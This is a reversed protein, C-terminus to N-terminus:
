QAVSRSGENSSGIPTGPPLPRAAISFGQRHLEENLARFLEFSDPYIWLTVTHKGPNLRALSQRFISDPRLAERLNEGTNEEVPILVSSESINAQQAGALQDTASAEKRVIVYRLRFGGRPGVLTSIESQSRLKLIQRKLDETALNILEQFPIPTVRGGQLQYFAQDGTVTRGIPTTYSQIKVAAPTRTRVAALAQTQRDLAQKLQEVEAALEASAQDASSLQQRKAALRAERAAIENNLSAVDRRHSTTMESLGVYENGLRALDDVLAQATQRPQTLDLPPDEPPLEPAPAPPPPAPRLVPEVFPAPAPAPEVAPAPAAASAPEAAAAQSKQFAAVLVERPTSKLRAGVMVVLIILIGVMNSMVDLFSDSGLEASEDRPRPM